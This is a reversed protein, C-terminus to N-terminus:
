GGSRDQAQDVRRISGPGNHKKHGVETLNPTWCSQSRENSRRKVEQNGHKEKAVQMIHIVFSNKKCGM